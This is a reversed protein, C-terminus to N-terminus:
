GRSHPSSTSPSADVHVPQICQTGPICWSALWRAGRAATKAVGRTTSREKGPMAEEGVTYPHHTRSRQSARGRGRHPLAEEVIPVHGAHREGKSIRHRRRCRTKTKMEGRVGGGACVEGGTDQRGRRGSRMRPVPFCVQAT